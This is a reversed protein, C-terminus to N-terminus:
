DKEGSARIARITLFFKKYTKVFANFLKWILKLFIKSVNKLGNKSINIEPRAFFTKYANSFRKKFGRLVIKCVNEFCKSSVRPTIRGLFRSLQKPFTKSDKRSINRHNWLFAKSVSPAKLAPQKTAAFDFHELKQMNASLIPLAQAWMYQFMCVTISFSLIHVSGKEFVIPSTRKFWFWNM